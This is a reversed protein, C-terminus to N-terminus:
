EQPLNEVSPATQVPVAQRLEALWGQLRKRNTGLDSYGIRSASFLAIASREQQLAVYAVGIDDAFRLLATRQVLDMGSDDQRVIKIRPQRAIVAQWAERLAPGPVAFIPSPEDPQRSAYGPPCILWCNPKNREPIARFNM